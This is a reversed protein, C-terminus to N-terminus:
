QENKPWRALEAEAAIYGFGAWTGSALLEEYLTKAKNADGNYQYWHAIGYRVAESSGISGSGSLATEELEGKYFLLLRHYGDSEITEMDATIPELIKEADEPREMRQLIMYLWHSSAVRMDDNTSADFCQQFHELAKNWNGKLYYALGLHYYINTHLSSVPQNLRNPIGDPEVVDATGQILTAGKELDEIALDLQRTSIYRHGRHRYFRADEPFKEIGETYAKIAKQYDGLYALRRGLWIKTEASDPHQKYVALAKEYNKVKKDDIPRLKPSVLPKGLLSQGQLTDIQVKKATPTKPTQKCGLVLIALLPLLAKM